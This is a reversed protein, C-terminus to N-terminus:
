KEKSGQEWGRSWARWFGRAYTVAGHGTRHDTYPNLRQPRGMKAAVYGMTWAGRFARNRYINESHTRAQAELSAIKTKV